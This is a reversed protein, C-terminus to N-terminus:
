SEANCRAILCPGGSAASVKILLLAFTSKGLAFTLQLMQADMMNNAENLVLDRKNLSLCWQHKRTETAISFYDM